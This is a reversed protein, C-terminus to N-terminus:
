NIGGLGGNEIVQGVLYNVLSGQREVVGRCEDGVIMRAGVAMEEEYLM